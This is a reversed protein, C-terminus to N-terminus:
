ARVPPPSGLRVVVGVLGVVALDEVPQGCEVGVGVGPERRM